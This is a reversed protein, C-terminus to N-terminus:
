VVDINYTYRVSRHKPFCTTTALRFITLLVMVIVGDCTYAYQLQTHARARPHPDPQGGNVLTPVVNSNEVFFTLDATTIKNKNQKLMIIPMIIYLTNQASPFWGLYYDRRGEPLM